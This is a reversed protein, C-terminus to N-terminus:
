SASDSTKGSGSEGMLALTKGSQVDLSVNNVARVVGEPTVFEASLNDLRLIPAEV